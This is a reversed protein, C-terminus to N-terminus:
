YYEFSAVLRKWLTRYKIPVLSINQLFVCLVCGEFAFPGNLLVTASARIKKGKNLHLNASM